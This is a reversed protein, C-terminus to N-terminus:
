EKEFNAKEALIIQGIRVRIENIEETDVGEVFVVVRLDGINFPRVPDQGQWEGKYFYMTLDIGESKTFTKMTESSNLDPSYSPNKIWKVDNEYDFTFWFQEESEQMNANDDINVFHKYEGKLTKIQDVIRLIIGKYREDTVEAQVHNVQILMGVILFLLIKKNM